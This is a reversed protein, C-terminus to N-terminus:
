PRDPWPAGVEEPLPGIAPESRSDPSRPPPLPPLEGDTLPLREVDSRSPLFSSPSPLPDASSPTIVLEHYCGVGALIAGHRFGAFWDHIALHGAPTQWGAGWYDRPPVPPPVGSGGATVHDVFGEKFGRKYDASYQTTPHENEIGEWAVHALKRSRIALHCKQMRDSYHLPEIITTRALNGVV